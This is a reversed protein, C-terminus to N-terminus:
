KKDPRLPLVDEATIKRLVRCPNGVALVGAPIDKTVVSGAGIVSGSGITVGPMICSNGGIWVNDGITVPYAYELGENRQTADLPHGATYISVNPALFVNDGITVKGPDLIVCGFNTYFNEGVSINYGFDCYFPQEVLFREGTKAFLKRILANRAESDLPDLQNYQWLLHKTQDRESIIEQDYNANYLWGLASKEKETLM